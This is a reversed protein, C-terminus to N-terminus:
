LNKKIEESYAKYGEENIHLGDVYYSEIPEGKKNCLAPYVNIFNVYHYPIVRKYEKYIMKLTDNSRLGQKTSKYGHMSEICPICSLLHIQCEPLNYHIIEIMEKVNLAIDRPSAMITNGLDNTGVMLFVQQPQYKLVGEDIFHLLIDSTIGGIGCNHKNEIDSMHKDIDFYETISDGFFVTGGSEIGRQNKIIELMRRLVSDRLQYKDTDYKMNERM